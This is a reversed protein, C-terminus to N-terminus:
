TLPNTEAKPIPEWFGTALKPATGDAMIGLTLNDDCVYGANDQYSAFEKLMYEATKQLDGNSQICCRLVEKPFGDQVRDFIGDTGVIYFDGPDRNLVGSVPDGEMMPGLSAALVNLGLGSAKQPALFHNVEGSAKVVCGGGDGIYSYGIERANGIVVILTTRLGGRIDTINLKDGELVLKHAAAIIAKSAVDHIDPTHWRSATGYARLVSTAANLVAFYAAKQGHALGGCGDAIILVDHGNITFCLGYDQNQSRVNGKITALGLSWTGSPMVPKIRMSPDQEASEIIQQIKEAPELLVQSQPRVPVISIEKNIACEVKTMDQFSNFTNDPAINTKSPLSINNQAVEEIRREMRFRWTFQFIALIATIVAFIALIYNNSDRYQYLKRYIAGFKSEIIRSENQILSSTMNSLPYVDINGTKPISADVVDLSTSTNNRNVYVQSDPVSVGDESPRTSEAQVLSTPSLLIAIIVFVVVWWHFMQVRSYLSTKHADNLPQGLTAKSVGIGTLYVIQEQTPTIRM